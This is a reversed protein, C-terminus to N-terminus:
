VAHALAEAGDTERTPRRHVQARLLHVAAVVRLCRLAHDVLLDGVEEFLGLFAGEREERIVAVGEITQDLIQDRVLRNVAFGDCGREFSPWSRRFRGFTTARQSSRLVLRARRWGNRSSRM